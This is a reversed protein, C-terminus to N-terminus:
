CDAGAEWIFDYQQRPANADNGWGGAPATTETQFSHSTETLHMHVDGEEDETATVTGAAQGRTRPVGPVAGVQLDTYSFTGTMTAETLTITWRQTGTYFGGATYEGDIIWEGDIGDCKEGLATGTAFANRYTGDIRYGGGVRFTLALTGIGRNSTSTLTVTGTDGNQSGARYTVAAPPDQPAGEPEMSALGAFTAVIRKDLRNGDIRHWPESTFDVVEQRQVQRSSETARIEVCKGSRWQEQARDFGRSSVILSTMKVFKMWGILEQDSMTGGSTGTTSTVQGFGRGNAQRTTTLRTSLTGTRTQGGTPTVTFDMEDVVTESQLYADEGVLGDTQSTAQASFSSSGLSGGTNGSIDVDMRLISIGNVDPCANIEARIHSRFTSSVIVAGSQLDTATATQTADAESIVTSGSVSVSFTVTTSNVTRLNGVTRETQHQLPDATHSTSQGINQIWTDLALGGLLTSGIYAQGGFAVGPGAMAVPEAQAVTLELDAPDLGAAVMVQRVADTRQDTLWGVVDEGVAEVLGTEVDIAAELEEGVDSLRQWSPDALAALVEAPVYASTVSSALPTESSGVSSSPRAEGCASLVLAISLAVALVARLRM